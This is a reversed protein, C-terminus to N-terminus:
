LQKNKVNIAARSYRNAIVGALTFLIPFATVVAFPFIGDLLTFQGVLVLGIFMPVVGFVGTDTGLVDPLLLFGLLSCTAILWYVLCYRCIGRSKTRMGIVIVVIWYAIYIFTTMLATGIGKNEPNGGFLHTLGYIFSWIGTSIALPVSVACLLARGLSFSKKRLLWVLIVVATIIEGSVAFAILCVPIMELMSDTIM